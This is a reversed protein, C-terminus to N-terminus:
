NPMSVVNKETTQKIIRILLNFNQTSMGTLGSTFSLEGLFNNSGTNPTWTVEDVGRIKAAGSLKVLKTFLSDIIAMEKKPNVTKGMVAYTNRFTQVQGNPIQDANSGPPTKTLILKPQGLIDKNNQDAYIYMTQGLGLTQGTLIDYVEGGFIEPDKNPAIQRMAKMLSGIKGTKATMQLKVAAAFKDRAQLARGATVKATGNAYQAITAFPYSTQTPRLLEALPTVVKRKMTTGDSTLMIFSAAAPPASHNVSTQSIYDLLTGDQGIKISKVEAPNTPAKAVTSMFSLFDGSGNTGSAYLMKDHPFKQMGAVGVLFDNNETKGINNVCEGLNPTAALTLATGSKNLTDTTTTTTIWQDEGPDGPIGGFNSGKRVNIFMSSKTVTRQIQFDMESLNKTTYEYASLYSGKAAEVSTINPASFSSLVHPVGYALTFSTKLDQCPKKATKGTFNEWNCFSCITSPSPKDGIGVGLTKDQANVYRIAELEENSAIAGGINFIPQDPNTAPKTTTKGNLRLYNYEAWDLLTKQDTSFLPFGTPNITGPAHGTTNATGTLYVGTFLENAEPAETIDVIEINGPFNLPGANKVTIYGGPISPPLLPTESATQGGAVVFVSTQYNANAGTGQVDAILNLGNFPPMKGGTAKSVKSTPTTVESAAVLHVPENPNISIAYLSRYPTASGSASGVINPEIATYGSVFTYPKKDANLQSQDPGGQAWPALDDYNSSNLDVSVNSIPVTSSGYQNVYVPTCSKLQIKNGKGFFAYLGSPNANAVSSFNTEVFSPDKIKKNIEAVLRQGISDSDNQIADIIIQAEKYQQGNEGGSGNIANQSQIMAYSILQNYNILDVGEPPKGAFAGHVIEQQKATLSSCPVSIKCAANMLSLSGNQVAHETQKKSGVALSVFAFGIGISVIIM